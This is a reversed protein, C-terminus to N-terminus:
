KPIRWCVPDLSFWARLVETEVISWPAMISNERCILLCSFLLGATSVGGLGEVTETLFKLLKGSSLDLYFSKGALPLSKASSGDKNWIRTSEM